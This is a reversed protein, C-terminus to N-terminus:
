YKQQLITKACKGSFLRSGDSYGEERDKLEAILYKRLQEQRKYVDLHTYSVPFVNQM